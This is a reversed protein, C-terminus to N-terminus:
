AKGQGHGVYYRRYLFNITREPDILNYPLKGETACGSRKATTQM